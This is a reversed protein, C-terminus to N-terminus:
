DIECCCHSTCPQLDSQTDEYGIEVPGLLSAYLAMAEDSICAAGRTHLFSVCVPKRWYPSYGRCPEITEHMGKHSYTNGIPRSVTRDLGNQDPPIAHRVPAAYLMWRWRYSKGVVDSCGGELGGTQQRRRLCRSAKAGGKRGM